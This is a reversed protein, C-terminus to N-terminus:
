EKKTAYYNDIALSIAGFMGADNGLKAGVLKLGILGPKMTRSQVAQWILNMFE